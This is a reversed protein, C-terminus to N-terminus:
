SCVYKFLQLYVREGYGIMHNWERIMTCPAVIFTAMCYRQAYPSLTKPNKDFILWTVTRTENNSFPSEVPIEYYSGLNQERWSHVLTGGEDDELWDILWPWKSERQCRSLDASEQYSLITFVKEFTLLKHKNPPCALRNSLGNIPLHNYTTLIATMQTDQTHIGNGICLQCREKQM